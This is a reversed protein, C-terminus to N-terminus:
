FGVPVDWVPRRWDSGDATVLRPMWGTNQLARVQFGGTMKMRGGCERCKARAFTASADFDRVDEVGEVLKIVDVAVERRCDRCILQWTTGSVLSHVLTPPMEYGYSRQGITSAM